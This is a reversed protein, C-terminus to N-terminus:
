LVLFSVVFCEHFLADSEFFPYVTDKFDRIAKTSASCRTRWRRARPRCAPSPPTASPASTCRGRSAAGIYMCVYLSLHTYVYMCMYM